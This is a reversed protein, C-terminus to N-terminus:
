VETLPVEPDTLRDVDVPRGSRVLDGVQDVVDWVNVNMGAVVHDGSLWFAIFERGKQDGRVVVRQYQGPVAYGIYEMGLDYQDSFFYPLREYVTRKGLMSRAAVQPQHLANAWHEVRLHKNYFPHFASAVDGAAFVAPDSSRLSADVVVGDDVALGSEQALAVDPAVGVGALVVDGEVTTGDELVLAGARASAIRAGLRLDVGHERHLDAFVQAMEPGLARLLPLEAYELVVVDAGANRAAAAAELGIWGAGVVVVRAGPTFAAKLAQSDEITRLYRPALEDAGPIDLPRPQAGTTLLLRDYPLADGDALRVLHADRDIATARTSLRLTVDNDAYWERPQPFVVDLEDNGLLYGKSLPPREYPVHPEAGILTIPGDHGEERLATVARAGALAAGVVVMNEASDM